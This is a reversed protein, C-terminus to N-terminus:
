EKSNIIKELWEDFPMIRYVPPQMEEKWKNYMRLAIKAVTKGSLIMETKDESM